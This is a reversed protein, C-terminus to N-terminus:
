LCHEIYFIQFNKLNGLSFTRYYYGNGTIRVEIKNSNCIHELEKQSVEYVVAEVVGRYVVKRIQSFPRTSFVMNKNDTLLKLSNNDEIFVWDKGKYLLFLLFYTGEATIFKQCNLEFNQFYENGSLYNSEMMYINNKDFKEYEYTMIYKPKIYKKNLIKNKYYNFKNKYNISDPQLKTLEDYLIMNKFINNSSVTRLENLVVEAEFYNDVITKYQIIDKFNNKNYLEFEDLKIYASDYNNSIIYRELDSYENKINNLFQMKDTILSNILVGKISKFNIIVIITFSILIVILINTIIGKNIKIKKPENKKSNIQKYIIISKCHKCIYKKNNQPKIIRYKKGCKNCKLIIKNNPIMIKDKIV